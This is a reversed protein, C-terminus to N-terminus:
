NTGKVYEALEGSENLEYSENLEDSKCKEVKMTTLQFLGKYTYSGCQM